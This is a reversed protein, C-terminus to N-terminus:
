PAVRIVRTLEPAAREVEVPTRARLRELLADKARRARREIVEDRLLKRLVEDSSGKGPIQEAYFLVHYGFPTRVIESIDGVNELAYVADVFESAYRTPASGPEPPHELDAARGDRAVPDLDEVRVEVGDAAVSEALQKFRAADTAGAVAEAIRSIVQRARAAEDDSRVRVVAHTVRRMEPRALEWWREGRIEEIENKTPAGAREAEAKLWELIARARAIRGAHRGRQLALREEAARAFLVDRVAALRAEPAALREARAIARVAEAAVPTDGVLAVTGPALSAASRGPGDDGPPSSCGAAIAGAVFGVALGRHRM